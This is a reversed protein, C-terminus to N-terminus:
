VRHQKQRHGSVHDSHWLFICNGELLIMQTKGVSITQKDKFNKITNHGFCTM